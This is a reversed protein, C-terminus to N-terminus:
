HLEYPLGKLCADIYDQTQSQPIRDRQVAIQCRDYQSPAEDPRSTKKAAVVPTKQALTPSPAPRGTPESAAPAHSKPANQTAAPPPQVRPAAVVDQAEVASGKPEDAFHSRISPAVVVLLLFFCVAGLAAGVPHSSIGDRLRSLLGKPPVPINVPIPPPPSNAEAARVVSALYEIRDAVPSSYADVWQATAVFLEIRKSAFVERIRLPVILKQYSYAREIESAVPPSTNSHESWILLFVSCAEIGNLIAEGYPHGAPVDRPAIWCTIGIKELRECIDDAIIKDKSSHSIFVSKSM